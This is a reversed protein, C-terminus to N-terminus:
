FGGNIDLKLGTIENTLSIISDRLKKYKVSDSILEQRDICDRILNTTPIRTKLINNFSSEFLQQYDTQTGKQIDEWHQGWQNYVIKWKDAVSTDIPLRDRLFTTPMYCFQSMLVPTIIIDSGEYATLTIDYWVPSTDCVIYDYKSLDSSAILRKFLNQNPRLMSLNINSRIVDLNNYVSPIAYDQLNAGQLAAAIHKQNKPDYEQLKDVPTFVSSMSSNATEFDIALVKFQTALCRAISVSLTSKGVGGKLSGFTIVKM